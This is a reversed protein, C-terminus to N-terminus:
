FEDNCWKYCSLCGLYIFFIEEMLSFVERELDGINDRVYNYYSVVEGGILGIYSKYM